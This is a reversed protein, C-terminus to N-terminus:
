QFQEATADINTDLRFFARDNSVRVLVLEEVRWVHKPLPSLINKSHLPLLTPFASVRGLFM